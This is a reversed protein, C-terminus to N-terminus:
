IERRVCVSATEGCAVHNAPLLLHAEAVHRGPEVQAHVGVHLDRQSGVRLVGVGDEPEVGDDLLSVLDEELRVRADLVNEAAEPEVRESTRESAGTRM